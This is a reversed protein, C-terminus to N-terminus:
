SEETGAVETAQLASLGGPEAETAKAQPPAHGCAVLTVHRDHLLSRQVPAVYLLWTEHSLEGIAEVGFRMVSLSGPM